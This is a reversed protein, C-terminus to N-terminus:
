GDQTPLPRRHRAGRCRARRPRAPPVLSDGPAETLRFGRAGAGAYDLTVVRDDIRVGPAHFGDLGSAVLLEPLVATADVVTGTGTGAAAWVGRVPLGRVGLSAAVM